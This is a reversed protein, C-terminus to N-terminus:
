SEGRFLSWMSWLMVVIIVVTFTEFTDRPLTAEFWGRFFWGAIMALSVVQFYEKSVLNM